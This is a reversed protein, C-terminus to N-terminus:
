SGKIGANNKTMFGYMEILYLIIVIFYSPYLWIFSNEENMRLSSPYAILAVIVLLYLTTICCIALNSINYIFLRVRFVTRSEDPIILFVGLGFMLSMLAVVILGSITILISTEDFIYSAKSLFESSTIDNASINLDFRQLGGLTSTMAMHAVVLFILNISLRLAYSKFYSKAYDNMTKRKKKPRAAQTRSILM